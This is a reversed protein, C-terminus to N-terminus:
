ITEESVSRYRNWIMNIATEEEANVKIRLQMGNKLMIVMMRHKGVPVVFGYIPMESKENEFILNRVEWWESYFFGFPRRFTIQDAVEVWIIPMGVGLYIFAICFLTFIIAVGIEIACVVNNGDKCFMGSYAGWIFLAVPAPFVVFTLLLWGGAYNWNSVRIADTAKNEL